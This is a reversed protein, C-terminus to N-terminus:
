GHPQHGQRQGRDTRRSRAPQRRHDSSRRQRGAPVHRGRLERAHADISERLDAGAHPRSLTHHKEYAKFKRKILAAREFLYAYESADSIPFSCTTSSGHTMTHETLFTRILPVFFRSWKTRKARHTMILPPLLRVVNEATVSILLGNDAARQTLLPRQMPKTLEIGIM